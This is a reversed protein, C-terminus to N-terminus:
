VGTLHSNGKSYVLPFEFLPEKDSVNTSILHILMKHNELVFWPSNRLNLYRLSIQYMQKSFTLVTYSNCSDIENEHM